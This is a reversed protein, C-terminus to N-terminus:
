EGEEADGQGGNSTPSPTPPAPLPRWHTLRKASYDGPVSYLGAWQAKTRLVVIAGIDLGKAYRGGLFCTGDKPATEIPMWGEGDREPAQALADVEEYPFAVEVFLRSESQGPYSARVRKAENRLTDLIRREGREVRDAALGPPQASLAARSQWKKDFAAAGCSQCNVMRDTVANSFREAKGGCFPCPLLGDESASSATPTQDTM